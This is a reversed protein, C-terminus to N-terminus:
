VAAVCKGTTPWSPQDHLYSEDDAETIGKLLCDSDIPAGKGDVHWRTGGAHMYTLKFRSLRLLEHVMDRLKYPFASATRGGSELYALGLKKATAQAFPKTFFAEHWEISLENIVCLAQTAILHPLVRLESGEIDMKMYIRHRLRSSGGRSSAGEVQHHLLLHRRAFHVIRGLDVTRVAASSTLRLYGAGREHRRDLKADAGLDTASAGSLAASFDNDKNTSAAPLGLRAIGDADSAAAKLILVRVGLTERLYRQLKDLRAAHHPNPRGM